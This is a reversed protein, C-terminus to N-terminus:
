GLIIFDNKNKEDVGFPLLYDYNGIAEDVGTFAYFMCHFGNGEDDDSLLIHKGGNGKKIQEACLKYLDNVTLVNNM